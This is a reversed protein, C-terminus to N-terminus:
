YVYFVFFFICPSSTSEHLRILQENKNKVQLLVVHLRLDRHRGRHPFPIWAAPEDFQRAIPMTVATPLSFIHHNLRAESQLRQSKMIKKQTVHFVM